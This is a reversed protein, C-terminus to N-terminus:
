KKWQPKKRIRKNALNGTPGWDLDEGMGTIIKRGLKNKVLYEPVNAETLGTYFEVMGPPKDTINPLLAHLVLHLINSNPIPKNKYKFLGNSDWKMKYNRTIYRLLSFAKARYKKPLAEIIWEIQKKEKMKQRKLKQTM